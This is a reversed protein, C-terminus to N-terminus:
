VGLAARMCRPMLNLLELLNNQARSSTNRMAYENVEITIGHSFFIRQKLGDASRLEM